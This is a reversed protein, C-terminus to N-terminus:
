ISQEYTFLNAMNDYTVVIKYKNEYTFVNAM